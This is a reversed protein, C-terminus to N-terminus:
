NSKTRKLLLHNLEAEKNKYIDKLEACKKQWITQDQQTTTNMKVLLEFEKNMDNLENSLAEIQKDLSSTDLAKSVAEILNIILLDKSRIMENYAKLFM